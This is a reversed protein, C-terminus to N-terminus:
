CSGLDAAARRRRLSDKSMTALKRADAASTLVVTVYRGKTRGRKGLDRSVAPRLLEIASASISPLTM